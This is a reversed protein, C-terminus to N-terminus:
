SFMTDHMKTTSNQMMSILHSLSNMLQHLEIAKMYEQEKSIGDTNKIHQDTSELVAAAVGAEKESINKYNSIIGTIIQLL